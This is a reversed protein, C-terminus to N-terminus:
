ERITETARCSTTSSGTAHSRDRVPRSSSTHIANGMASSMDRVRVKYPRKIGMLGEFHRVRDTYYALAESRYSQKVGAEDLSTPMKRGLVYTFGDQTPKPKSETMRLLRFVIKDLAPLDADFRVRGRINGSKDLSASVTKAMRYYVYGTYTKGNYSYDRRLKRMGM